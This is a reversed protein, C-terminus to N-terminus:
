AEQRVTRALTLADVRAAGARLLVKACEELTAGTTLVDDILLVRKGAVNRGRKVAFAGAVNRRRAEANRKGQSPTRRRRVLLDAGFEPGGWAVARALVAAQNYRRAFLRTWHLPVPVVLDAEAILDSGARRMWAALAPALHLRDGHKFALILKRSEEDYRVAARASTFAPHARTCAGCLADPGLDYAFPLGCAACCPAGLFTIRGWCQGCLAHAAAVPAGCSLCYPPLVVDLVRTAARRLPVLVDSMGRHSFPPRDKDICLLRATGYLAGHGLAGM